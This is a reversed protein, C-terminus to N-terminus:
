TRNAVRGADGQGPPTLVALTPLHSLFGGDVPILQGTIFSAAPSALFTVLAAVDAPTGLRPVLNHTRIKDQVFEPMDADLAATKILGPAVTNCRVGHDGYAAAVFRTLAILGGKSSGYAVMTRDGSLGQGSAINVISGGGREIMLPVTHKCLLMPGRLNVAMVEDWLEVPMTVVDRDRKIASVLAANNDLIDVGGFTDVTFRVLSRVSDEDSVDVVHGAVKLGQATLADVVEAVAAGAVDAVVVRAGAEALAAVTVVGIGGAGGTVIAVKGELASM